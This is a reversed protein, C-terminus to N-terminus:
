SSAVRGKTRVWKFSVIVGYNEETDYNVLKGNESLLALCILNTLTPIFFCHYCFGEKVMRRVDNALISVYKKYYLFQISSNYGLGSRHDTRFFLECHKQTSGVRGRLISIINTFERM